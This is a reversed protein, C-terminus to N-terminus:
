TAGSGGAGASFYWVGSLSFAGGRFRLTVLRRPNENIAALVDDVASQEISPSGDSIGLDNADAPNIEVFMEQQLEALWSM